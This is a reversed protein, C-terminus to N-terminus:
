KARFSRVRQVLGSVVQDPLDFKPMKNKGNRIVNAMEDDTINQQWDARSLDPARMMPGQPGDGRGTPGHCPTCNKRWAMDLLM